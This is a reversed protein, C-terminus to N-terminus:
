HDFDSLLLVYYIQDNYLLTILGDSRKDIFGDESRLLLISKDEENFESYRKLTIGCRKVIIFPDITLRREAYNVITEAVKWKIFEYREESFINM